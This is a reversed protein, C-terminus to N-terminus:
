EFVEMLILIAHFGHSGYQGALGSDLFGVAIKLYGETNPSAVSKTSTATVGVARRRREGTPPKTPVPYRDIKSSVISDTDDQGFYAMTRTPLFANRKGSFVQGHPQETASVVPGSKLKWNWFSLNTKKEIRNGTVVASVQELLHLPSIWILGQNMTLPFKPQLETAPYFLRTRSPSNTLRDRSQSSPLM